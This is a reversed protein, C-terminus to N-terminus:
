RRRRPSRETEEQWEFLMGIRIQLARSIRQLQEGTPVGRGEEWAYITQRSVGIVKAFQERSELRSERIVRLRGPNFRDEGAMRGDSLM